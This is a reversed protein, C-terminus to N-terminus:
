SSVRSRICPVGLREVEQVTGDSSGDDVVLVSVGQALVAACVRGINRSENYVPILVCVSKANM